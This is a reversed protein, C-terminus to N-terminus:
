QGSISGSNSFGMSTPSAKAFFVLPLDDIRVRVLLGNEAALWKALLLTQLGLVLLLESSGQINLSGERKCRKRTFLLALHLLGDILGLVDVTRDPHQFDKMSASPHSKPLECSSSSQKAM